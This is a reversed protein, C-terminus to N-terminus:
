DSDNKINLKDMKTNVSIIKINLKDTKTNTPCSCSVDIGDMKKKHSEM